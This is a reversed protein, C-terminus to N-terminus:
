QNHRRLLLHALLGDQWAQFEPLTAAAAAHEGELAADAATYAGSARSAAAQTWLTASAVVNSASLFSLDPQHKRASSEPQCAPRRVSDLHM